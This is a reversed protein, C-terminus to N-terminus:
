NVSFKEKLFFSYDIGLFSDVLQQTMGFLCVQSFQHQSHFGKTRMISLQTKIWAAAGLGASSDLALLVSPFMAEAQIESAGLDRELPCRWLATEQAKIADVPATFETTICGTM